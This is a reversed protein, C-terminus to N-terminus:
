IVPLKRLSGKPESREADPTTAFEETGTAM